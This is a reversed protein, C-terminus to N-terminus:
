GGGRGPRIAVGRADRPPRPAAARVQQVEVPDELYLLYQLIRLPAPQQEQM